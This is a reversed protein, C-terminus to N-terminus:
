PRRAREGNKRSTMLADVTGLPEGALTKVPYRWLNTLHFAMQSVECGAIPRTRDADNISAFRWQM